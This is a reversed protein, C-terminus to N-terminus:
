VLADVHAAVAKGLGDLNYGGELVSVIRGNCHEEAFKRLTKTLSAFQADTLTFRGLPDDIRSDFGASIMVLDPKFKAAAEALPGEIAGGIEKIGSGAAFPANMICGKGKGTGTEEAWGTFPYWPAQHSSFFFVSGDEYFIDQTGNGHHVDWDVILVKAAGHKKQAHRAGIAINNFLCFGMGQAPRAHHGPPRVACFANKLKGTMVADVAHVVGGVARQAVDLSRPCIITDGTSLEDRGSAVDRKAIELYAKTHCLLIHDDECPQPTLAQTKQVLGAGTLAETVVKYRAPQEPHGPGTDHDRYIGDLLLGTPLATTDNAMAGTCRLHHLIALAYICYSAPNLHGARRPPNINAEVRKAQISRGTGTMKLREV